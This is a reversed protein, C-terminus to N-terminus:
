NFIPTIIIPALQPYGCNKGSQFIYLLYPFILNQKRITLRSKSRNFAELDFTFNMHHYSISNM